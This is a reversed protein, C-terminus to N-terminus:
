AMMEDIAGLACDRPLFTRTADFSGSSAKDIVLKDKILEEENMVLVDCHLCIKTSLSPFFLRGTKKSPCQVIEWHIIQGVDISRGELLCTLLLVREKTISSDHTTPMVRFKLFYLWVNAEPNILDSLM